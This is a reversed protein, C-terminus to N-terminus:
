TSVINSLLFYQIILYVIFFVPTASSENYSRMMLDPFSCLFLLTTCDIIRLLMKLVIIPSNISALWSLPQLICHKPWPFRAQFTTAHVTSFLQLTHSLYLSTKSCGYVTCPAHWHTSLPVYKSDTQCVFM